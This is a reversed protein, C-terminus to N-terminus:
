LLLFTLRAWPWMALIPSLCGGGKDQCTPLVVPSAKVFASFFSFWHLGPASQTSCMTLVTGPQPPPAIFSPCLFYPVHRPPNSPSSCLWVEFLLTPAVKSDPRELSGM